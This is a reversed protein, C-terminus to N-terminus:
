LIVHKSHSLEYESERQFLFDNPNGLSYGVEVFVNQITDPNDDFNKMSFSRGKITTLKSCGEFAFIPLANLKDPFYM